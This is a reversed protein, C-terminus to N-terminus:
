ESKRDENIAAAHQGPGPLKPFRTLQWINSVAVTSILMSCHKDYLQYLPDSHSWSVYFNM